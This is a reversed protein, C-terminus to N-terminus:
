IHNLNTRKIDNWLVSFIKSKLNDYTRKYYATRFELDRIDKNDNNQIKIWHIGRTPTNAEISVTNFDCYVVDNM